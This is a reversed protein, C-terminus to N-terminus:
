RNRPSPLRSRSGSRRPSRSNCRSGRADRRGRRGRGHRRSRRVDPLARALIQLVDGMRIHPLTRADRGIQGFGVHDIDARARRLRGGFPEIREARRAAPTEARASPMSPPMSITVRGSSPARRGALNRPRAWNMPQAPNCSAARGAVPRANALPHSPTCDNRLPPRERRSRSTRRHRSTATSPM